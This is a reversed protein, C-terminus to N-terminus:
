WVAPDGPTDKYIVYRTRTTGLAGYWQLTYPAMWIADGAAVPHWDDGLRYIGRGEVVLLGHENHHSEKTALYQGPEFDMVHVNFAAGPPLLKRLAFTEGGGPDARPLASAVGHVPAALSPDGDQLVREYLLVGAGARTAVARAAGAPFFAFGDARLPFADGGGGGAVEVEGDLVFLLREVADSAPPGIAGAAGLDALAMSFRAGLAPSAAHAWTANAWGPGAAPAWTRSEPTVLAYAGPKM